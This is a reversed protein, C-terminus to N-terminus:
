QGTPRLQEDYLFQYMRYGTIVKHVYDKSQSFVIEAVYRDASNSRSRNLWRKMNDEGGNYSAVVADPKDPFIRFLNSLYQSGFLIATPPYYLDEQQFADRGLEAAVRDSTTSIFQMLGRAAASSKADPQFRSEQRMIALVLRPDIGNERPIRVMDDAFPAPYLMKLKDRPMLEIPYDAPVTRWFPEASAVVLDAREGLQFTKILRVANPSLKEALDFREAEIEVAAEDYLSLDILKEVLKSSSQKPQRDKRTDASQQLYKPLPPLASRLVDFARERLAADESLRLVARAHKERSGADGEALAAASRSIAQVVAGAADGDALSRLKETARWGYYEGRGDSVSLYVEIAESYRKLQELAYGRLFTIESVSTGGPVSSGGLDSFSRLRELTNLANQWEERAIYIRAETFLAIAEPRKGKFVERVKECARLAETDEGQDRLIDVMNLYARDLKDDSAYKSIFTQYRTLAEKPRGVRGYASAAQLLAEKVVSSEPYQELVREFWKLAEVFETQQAFGRGIQFVAEAAYTGSPHRSILAEYHLKAPEFERNFQYVWARRVYESEALQPAEEERNGGDLLDLNRVAILAVDDPQTQNPTSDLLDNFNERARQADGNRYYSEALLAKIDRLAAESGSSGQSNSFLRPSTLLAITEAYSDSEFNSRALRSLASKAVLADPSFTLIQNLYIRELMVNGTSRAMRSLRMWAYPRLQSDRSAASQYSAAALGLDGNKEAMRGLLYDYDGAAFGSEDSARLKLLEAIAAAYQRSEVAQKIQQESSVTGLAIGAFVTLTLLVSHSLSPKMVRIKAFILYM